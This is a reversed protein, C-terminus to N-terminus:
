PAGPLPLGFDQPSVHRRRSEKEDKVHPAALPNTLPTPLRITAYHWFDLVCRPGGHFRNGFVVDAHGELIPELLRPHDRPDYELDADKVLVIDGTAHAV